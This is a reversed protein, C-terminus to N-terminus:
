EIYYFISSQLKKDAHSILIIEIMKLYNELSPLGPVVRDSVILPLMTVLQAMQAATQKFGLSPDLLQRENIPTPKSSKEAYGYDFDSIRQNLEQITILGLTCCIDKLFMKTTIVCIGLWDDHTLDPPTQTPDFNEIETLVTRRNIGYRTRLTAKDEEEIADEIDQTQRTYEDLSRIKTEDEKCMVRMENLTANCVRCSFRASFSNRFGCLKQVGLNDGLVTSMTGYIVEDDSLVIGNELKKIENVVHQLITNMGYVDTIPVHIFEDPKITVPQNGDITSTGYPVFKEGLLIRNPAVVNFKKQFYRDKKQISNLGQSCDINNIIEEVDVYNDLHLNHTDRLKERVDNLSHTVYWKVVDQM